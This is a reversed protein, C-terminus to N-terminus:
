GPEVERRKLLEMQFVGPAKMHVDWRSATSGDAALVSGDVRIDSDSGSQLFVKNVTMRLPRDAVGTPVEIVDGPGFGYHARVYHNVTKEAEISLRVVEEFVSHELRQAVDKFEEFVHRLHVASELDDLAPLREVLRARRLDNYFAAVNRLTLKLSFARIRLPLVDNMTIKKRTLGVACAAPLADEGTRDRRGGTSAAASAPPVGVHLLKGALAKRM